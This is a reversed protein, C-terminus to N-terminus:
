EHNVKTEFQEPSLPIEFPRTRSGDPQKEYAFGDEDVAFHCIRGRKHELQDVLEYIMLTLIQNNHNKLSLKGLKSTKPYRGFINRCVKNIAERAEYLVIIKKALEDETFKNTRM